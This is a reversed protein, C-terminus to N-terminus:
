LCNQGSLAIVRDKAWIPPRLGLFVDELNDMLGLVAREYGCASHGKESVAGPDGSVFRKWGTVLL